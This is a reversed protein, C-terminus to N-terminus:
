HHLRFLVITGVGALLLLVQRTSPALAARQHLSPILDAAGIYLFSAAAVALMYPIASQITELALWGLFAGPLTALGSVINFALAQRRSYGSALLIAFDGVEQPVEHAIVALATAIGLPVATLFAAAIVVGDIANHVADGILILPGAAAHADCKREHCHHWLVIKELVFFAVMGALATGMVATVSAQELAHPMLGLFAAGLLTGTAYSLLCPMVTRLLGAPFALLLAAGGIAGASGLLSFCLIWILLM